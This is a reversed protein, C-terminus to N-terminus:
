IYSKYSTAVLSSYVYLVYRPHKGSHYRSYCNYSRGVSASGLCRNVSRSILIMELITDKAFLSPLFYGSLLLKRYFPFTSKQQVSVISFINDSGHFKAKKAEKSHLNTTFADRDDWGGKWISTARWLTRASVPAGSIWDARKNQPYRRIM